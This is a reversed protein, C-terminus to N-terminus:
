YLLLLCMATYGVYLFPGFPVSQRITMKGTIMVTAAFISCVILAFILTTFVAYAGLVFGMVALLKVDGAGIGGKSLKNGLLLFLGCLLCGVIPAVIGSVPLQKVLVEYIYILVKMGILTIPILNPIIRLKLDIVAACLVAFYCAAIQIAASVSVTNRFLCVGCLASVATISGLLGYNWVSGEYKKIEDMFEQEIEHNTVKAMGLSAMAAMAAFLLGILAEM